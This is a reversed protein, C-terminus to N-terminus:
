NADRQISSTSDSCCGILLSASSRNQYSALLFLLPSLSIRQYLVVPSPLHTFQKRTGTTQVTKREERKGKGDGVGGLNGVGKEYWAYGKKSEYLSM